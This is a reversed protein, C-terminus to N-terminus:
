ITADIEEEGVAKSKDSIDRVRMRLIDGRENGIVSKVVQAVEERHVKGEDDRVIEVAVGLEVMLRANITQDLHMPMAIIPVGFDISVVWIFNVNSYELGFAIEELEEESLFYEDSGFSVFVTSHENKKGLWDILEVDEDDENIERDQVLSGVPIVKM